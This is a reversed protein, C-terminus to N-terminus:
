LKAVVKQISTFTEDERPVFFVSLDMFFRQQMIKIWALFSLLKLVLRFWPLRFANLRCLSGERPCIVGRAFLSSSFTNSAAVRGISFLFSLMDENRTGGVTSVLGTLVASGITGLVSFWSFETMRASTIM